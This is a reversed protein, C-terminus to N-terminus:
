ESYSSGCDLLSATFRNQFEDVFDMANGIWEEETKATGILKEFLVEVGGRVYRDYIVMNDSVLEEDAENFARRVRENIDLEKKAELLMILHYNLMLREKEAIITEAFISRPEAKSATDVDAERRYLFGVLPAALYVDIFRKFLSEAPQTSGSSDSRLALVM